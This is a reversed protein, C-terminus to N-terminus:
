NLLIRKIIKGKLNWLFDIGCLACASNRLPGVRKDEDISDKFMEKMLGVEIASWFSVYSSINGM